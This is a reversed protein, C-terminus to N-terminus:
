NKTRSAVFVEFFYERSIRSYLAKKKESARGGSVQIEECEFHTNGGGPVYYYKMRSLPPTRRGDDSKKSFQGPLNGIYGLLALKIDQTFLAIEGSSTDPNYSNAVYCYFHEESHYVRDLTLWFYSPNFKISLKAALQIAYCVDERNCMAKPSLEHLMVEKRANRAKKVKGEKGKLAPRRIKKVDKKSQVTEENDDELEMAQGNSSWLSM